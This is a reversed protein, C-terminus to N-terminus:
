PPAGATCNPWTPNLGEEASSGVCPGYPSGLQMNIMFIGNDQYPTTKTVILLQDYYVVPGNATIFYKPDLRQALTSQGAPPQTASVLIEFFPNSPDINSVAMGNAYQESQQSNAVQSLGMVIYTRCQPYTATCHIFAKPDFIWPETPDPSYITNVLQMMPAGTDAYTGNQLYIQIASTTSTDALTMLVFEANGNADTFDPAKFMVARQKTTPDSTLQQVAKTVTDYWFVQQANSTGMTVDGQFTLWTTCPVWREGIGNALAGFPTTTPLTGPALSVPETFMETTPDLNEFVAYAMADSPCQSAEPLITNNSIPAFSGPFFGYDWTPSGEQAGTITAVGAGAYEWTAPDGTNFRTYVLQSIPNGGPAGPPTSFAWEPGNGWDQWFFTSTDVAIGSAGHGSVPTFAGSTPDVGSVWLNDNRDTWNLQSNGIGFNCSACYLGDRAWDFEIDGTMYPSISIENFQQTVTINVPAVGCDNTKDCLQYQLKYPGAALSATTTVAGTATNLSIGTPWSGSPYPAVTANGSSGLKVATGNVIDNAVINGIPTSATGVVASGAVPVVVLASDVTVTDIATACASTLDDCLQYQLNDYLGPAVTAAVTIAGTTTNLAIGPPWTGLASVTANPSQQLRAQVGNVLDNTAVNKIPTSAKGAVATGIDPNAVASSTVIIEDTTAACDAPVNLDCLEYQFDYTGVAVATTVSVAGTNSNLAIGTPWTGVTTVKANGSAGLVAAVGNVSDNAAVNSIAARTGTGAIATGTDPIPLISATLVTITATAISCQKPTNLDCLEYQATYVNDLLTKSTSVAGTSSTLTLGAPWTGYETVVANATGYASLIAPAGGITDNAAVNAIPLSGLGFDATGSDPNAVPTLNSVTITDTAQKCNKPVNMDCLSYVVSYQGAAVATTTYITGTSSTLSIGPPWPAMGNDTYEGVVANATGYALLIAPAGNITDNYAVNAIPQSGVGADAIGSDSVPDIVANIVTVTDTADDCDTPASRACLAYTVNYSGAALTAGTSVTGTTTNLGIGPQWTGVKAVTANGSNGLTAPAGNITDNAAVDAIPQSAIGADATGSDPVAVVTQALVPPAFAAALAAAIASTLFRGM